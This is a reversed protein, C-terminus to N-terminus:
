TYTSNPHIGMVLVIGFFKKIEDGDYRARMHSKSDACRLNQRAYINTENAIREFFDGGLVEEFVSLPTVEESEHLFVKREERFDVQPPQQEPDKSWRAVLLCREVAFIFFLLYVTRM